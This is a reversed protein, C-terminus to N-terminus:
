TNSSVAQHPQKSAPTQHKLHFRLRWSFLFFTKWRVARTLVRPEVTDTRRSGRQSKVDRKVHWTQHASVYDLASRKSQKSHSGLCLSLFDNGDFCTQCLDTLYISNTVKFFLLRPWWSLFFSVTCHVTCPSSQRYNTTLRNLPRRENVKGERNRVSRILLSVRKKKKKNSNRQTMREIGRSYPSHLGLIKKKKLM